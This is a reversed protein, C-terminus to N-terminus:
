AKGHAVIESKTRADLHRDRGKITKEQKEDNKRVTSSQFELSKEIDKVQDSMKDMYAKIKTMDAKLTQIDARFENFMISFKNELAEIKNSIKGSVDTTISDNMNTIMTRMEENFGNFESVM